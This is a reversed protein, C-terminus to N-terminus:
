FKQSITSFPVKLGRCTFKYYILKNGDIDERSTLEIILDDRYKM